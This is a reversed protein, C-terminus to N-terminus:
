DAREPAGAGDLGRSTERTEGGEDSGITSRSPALKPDDFSWSWIGGRDGGTVEKMGVSEEDSDRETGALIGDDM